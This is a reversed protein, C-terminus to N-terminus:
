RRYNFREKHSSKFGLKWLGLDDNQPEYEELSPEHMANDLAKETRQKAAECDRKAQMKRFTASNQRPHGKRINGIEYPGTDAYRQMQLQDHGRGRRGIDDGWFECWQKFTLNWGIKRREANHKQTNFARMAKKIEM